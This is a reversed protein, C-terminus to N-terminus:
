SMRYKGQLMDTLGSQSLFWNLTSLDPRSQIAGVIDPQPLPYLLQNIVYFIGNNARTVAIAKAGSIIILQLVIFGITILM